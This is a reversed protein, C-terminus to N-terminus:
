ELNFGTMRSLEDLSEYCDLKLHVAESQDPGCDPVTLAVIRETSSQVNWVRSITLASLQFTALVQSGLTIVLFRSKTGLYEITVDVPISKSPRDSDFLHAHVHAPINPREDEDHTYSLLREQVWSCTARQDRSKTEDTYAVSKDARQGLLRHESSCMIKKELARASNNLGAYSIEQKRPMGRCVVMRVASSGGDCHRDVPETAHHYSAPM